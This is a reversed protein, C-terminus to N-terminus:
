KNYRPYFSPAPRKTGSIYGGGTGGVGGMGNDGYELDRGHTSRFSPQAYRFLEVGNVSLSASPFIDTSGSISLRNEFLGFTLKQAINVVDYGMLSLGLSEFGNVMAHQEFTASGGQMGFIKLPVNSQGPFNDRGQFIGGTATVVYDSIIDVSLLNNQSDTHSILQVTSILKDAAAWNGFPGDWSKGDIFSNFTFTLDKGLYTEGAKTTAQSTARSDWYIEGEANQVWDNGGDPDVSNVANNGMGVYGSYYQRKRDRSTWRGIVPDYERLEFHEWNTEDDHESFQGQYGYRYKADLDIWKQERLVGGWSEYDTAQAVLPKHHVVSMDDFWVETNESENSVWVYVYGAQGITIPDTFKVLNNQTFGSGRQPEEFGAELPVRQAGGDVKVYSSNFVLYNLYAYPRDTDGENTSVLGTLGVNFNNAAQTISELGNSFAYQGALINAIISKIPAKTYSNKIKFRAWASLDIQDGPSVSLAIAPGVSKKDATMGAQGDIWYLYSSTNPSPTIASSTHNMDADRKETEFLNKFYVNERVRPNTYTATGDDELTATYENAQVKLLARVNGLHDTIEYATSGADTKSDDAAVSNAPYYTALKGAGYIPVETQTPTGTGTQEYISLVNGSADRIYWTVKVEGDAPPYAVKTLRFGRDDYTYRVTPKTKSADEYVAVVKGTVDYDVYQDKEKDDTKNASTMQGIANYTYSAYNSVSLLKNSTAQYAYAFNHQVQGNDGYRKLAQINGNPDYAMGTLRYTNGQLQYNNATFNPKAFLVEKLQYKEDYDYLYMGSFGEGTVQYAKDTRWRATTILGNYLVPATTMAPIPDTITVTIPDSTISLNNLWTNTLVYRYIGQRSPAAENIVFSGLVTTQNDASVNAWSSAEQKEWAFTSHAGSATAEIKLQTNEPVVLNALLAAGRQPSYTFKQFPHTNPATFYREIDAVPIANNEINIILSAKDTRASLDPLSTFKNDNLIFTKMTPMNMLWAPVAGTFNNFKFDALTLKTLSQLDPLPGPINLRELYLETLNTL